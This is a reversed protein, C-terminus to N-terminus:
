KPHELMYRISQLLEIQQDKGRMERELSEKEETLRKNQTELDRIRALLEEERGKYDNLAISEKDVPSYGLVLVEESICAARALKPLCESIIKTKGTELNRYATRSIGLEEAMETQSKGAKERANRLNKKLSKNDM